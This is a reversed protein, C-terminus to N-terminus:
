LKHEVVSAPTKTLGSIKDDLSKFSKNLDKTLTDFLVVQAQKEGLGVHLELGASLDSEGPEFAIGIGSFWGAPGMKAFEDWNNKFQDWTCLPQRPKLRDQLGLKLALRLQPIAPSCVLNAVGLGGEFGLQDGAYKDMDDVFQLGAGFASDVLFDKWGRRDFLQSQAKGGSAVWVATEYAIREGFFQLGNILALQAQFGFSDKLAAEVQKRIVDQELIADMVAIGQASSGRPVAIALFAFWVALLMAPFRHRFPRRPSGM